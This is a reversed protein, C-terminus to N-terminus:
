RSVEARNAYSGVRRDTGWPRSPSEGEHWWRLFRNRGDAVHSRFTTYKMGLADAATLYDDHVALAIIASRQRHTLMPLIQALATRDVIPGEPSRAPSAGCLDWWYARFAPSSFAGHQAGDTKRRYFGYSQREADVVALIALQGVRVLHSREPWDDTAYVHEAIASWATEYRDQWHGGSARATHVALRALTHLDAMTYGHRLRLHPASV